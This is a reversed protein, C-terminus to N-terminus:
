GRVKFNVDALAETVSIRFSQFAYGLPAGSRIGSNAGSCRGTGNTPIQMCSVGPGIPMVPLKAQGRAAGHIAPHIELAVTGAAIKM